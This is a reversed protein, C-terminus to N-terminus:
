PQEKHLQCIDLSCESYVLHTNPVIFLCFLITEKKHSMQMWVAFPSKGGFAMLPYCVGSNSLTTFINQLNSATYLLM